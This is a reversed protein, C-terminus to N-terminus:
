NYAALFLGNIGRMLCYPIKHHHDVRVFHRQGPSLGLLLQVIAMGTIDAAQLGSGKLLRKGAMGRKRQLLRDLTHKGFARQASLQQLIDFDIRPRLMRM